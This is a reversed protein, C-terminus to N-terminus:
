SPKQVQPILSPLVSSMLHVYVCSLDSEIDLKNGRDGRIGRCKQAMWSRIQLQLM